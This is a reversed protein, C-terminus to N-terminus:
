DGISMVAVFAKGFGSPSSVTLITINHFGPDIPDLSDIGPKAMYPNNLCEQVTDAYGACVGDSLDAGFESGTYFVEDIYIHFDDGSCFCDTFTVITYKYSTYYFSQLAWSGIDGFYFHEYKTDPRIKVQDISFSSAQTKGFLGTDDINKGVCVSISLLFVISYSVFNFM